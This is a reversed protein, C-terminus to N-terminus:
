PLHTQLEEPIIATCPAAASNTAQHTVPAIWEAVSMQSLTSMNVLALLLCLLYMVNM